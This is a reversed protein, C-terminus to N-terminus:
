EPSSTEEGQILKVSEISGEADYIMTLLKEIREVSERDNKVMMGLRLERLENIINGYLAAHIKRLIENAVMVDLGGDVMGSPATFMQEGVVNLRVSVMCTDGQMMQAKASCAESLKRM